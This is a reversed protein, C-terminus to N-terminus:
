NGFYYMYQAYEPWAQQYADMRGIPVSMMFNSSIPGFCGQPIVPPIESNIEVFSLSCDNFNNKKIENIGAGFYIKRLNRCYFFAREGIVEVGNGMMVTDLGSCNGFTESIIELGPSSEIAVGTFRCKTFANKGLTDLSHPTRLFRITANEYFAYDGIMRITNPMYWRGLSDLIATNKPPCYVLATADKNYLVGDISCYYSNDEAVNITELAEPSAADIKIDTVYEPIELTKLSTCGNFANMNIVEAKEIDVHTLQTCYAFSYREIRVVSPPIVVEELGCHIFASYGIYTVKEPLYIHKLLKCGNFANSSIKTINEPLTVKQLKDCSDFTYAGIEDM